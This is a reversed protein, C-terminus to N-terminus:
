LKWWVTGDPKRRLRDKDFNKAVELQLELLTKDPNEAKLEYMWKRFDPHVWMQRKNM